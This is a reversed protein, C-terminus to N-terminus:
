RCFHAVHVCRFLIHNLIYIAYMHIQAQTWMGQHHHYRFCLMMYTSKPVMATLASNFYPTHNFHTQTHRHPPPPKRRRKRLPEQMPRQDMWKCFIQLQNKILINLSWVKFRVYGTSPSFYKFVASDWDNVRNKNTLQIFLAIYIEMYMYM